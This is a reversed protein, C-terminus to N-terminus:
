NNESLSWDKPEIEDCMWNHIYHLARGTGPKFMLEPYREIILPLHEMNGGIEVEDFGLQHAILILSKILSLNDVPFIVDVYAIRIQKVPADPASMDYHLESFSFFGIPKRLPSPSSSSWLVYSFTYGDRPLYRHAFHAGNYSIAIKFREFFSSVFPFVLPLDTPLLPLLNPLISGLHSVGSEEASITPSFGAQTMKAHNLTRHYAAFETLFRFPMHVGLTFFAPLCEVAEAESGDKENSVRPAFGVQQKCALHIRRSLEKILVRAVRMSRLKEFVCLQRVMYVQRVKHWLRLRVPIAAVFAVLKQTNSAQVAVYLPPLELGDGEIKKEVAEKKARAERELEPPVRYQLQREVHASTWGLKFNEEKDELANAALFCTLRQLDAPRKPDIAVWEYGKPLGVASARGDYNDPIPMHFYDNMKPGATVCEEDAETVVVGEKEEGKGRKEEEVAVPRWKTTGRVMVLKDFLSRWTEGEISPTEAGLCPAFDRACELEPIEESLLRRYLQPLM